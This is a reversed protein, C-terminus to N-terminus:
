VMWSKGSLEAVKGSKEWLGEYPGFVTNAAISRKAAVGWEAGEIESWILQLLEEPLTLVARNPTGPPIQM